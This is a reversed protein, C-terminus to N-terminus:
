EEIEALINILDGECNYEYIWRSGDGHTVKEFRHPCDTTASQTSAQSPAAFGILAISVLVLATIVINKLNKM